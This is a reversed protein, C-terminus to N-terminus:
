GYATGIHITNATTIVNGDIDLAKFYIDSQGNREGVVIYDGDIMPKQLALDYDYGSPLNSAGDVRLLHLLNSDKAVNGLATAFAAQNNNPYINNNAEYVSVGTVDEDFQINTASASTNFYELTETGNNDIKISQIDVHHSVFDETSPAAPTTQTIPQNDVLYEVELIDVRNNNDDVTITQQAQLTLASATFLISTFFSFVTKELNKM